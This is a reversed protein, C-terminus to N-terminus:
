WSTGLKDLALELLDTCWIDPCAEATLQKERLDCACIPVFEGANLLPLNLPAITMDHDQIASRIKLHQDCSETYCDRKEEVSINCSNHIVHYWTLNRTTPSGLTKCVRTTCARGSTM